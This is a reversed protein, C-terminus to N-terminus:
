KKWDGEIKTKLLLWIEPTADLVARLQPALVILHGRGYYLDVIGGNGEYGIKFEGRTYTVSLMPTKGTVSVKELAFKRLKGPPPMLENEGDAFFIVTKGAALLAPLERTATDALLYLKAQEREAPVLGIATISKRLDDLDAYIGRSNIAAAVDSLPESSYFAIEHNQSPPLLLKCKLTVGTELKPIELQLEANGTDDAKLEGSGMIRDNATRLEWRYNQGSTLNRLTMTQPRGAYLNFRDAALPLATSLLVMMVLWTKTM